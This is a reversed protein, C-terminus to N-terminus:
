KQKQAKLYDSYLPSMDRLRQVINKLDATLRDVDEEKSDKGFTVRLSGHAIEHPLGIALLVHSPDLSGSTCASGSSCSYGLLDLMLLISEGEIFEFSINVNNPLRSTRHGNLRAHPIETLVQDILRDRLKSLRDSNDDIESVALEFARALAAIGAVNETGGRKAREQAGGDLLNAIRVGSRIYLVGVGKPAYMKHGSISLLDVNLEKVNLKLAGAAQVADTHFLVKNARCIKGIEAIPQVTGIENNAMMISVLITDPRIARRVAEPDVLGYQDVDLWTIEYGQRALAECPHIVAHHEISSTIIHKGKEAQAIAAGKIAWNDSETGCSTFYVENPKAGICDAVTERSSSIIKAAKQGEQYFSSPNGFNDRYIDLMVELVESRVPTTAAYDLYVRKKESM